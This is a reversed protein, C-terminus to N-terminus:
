KTYRNSSNKSGYYVERFNKLREEKTEGTIRVNQGLNGLEVMQAILKANAPAQQNSKPQM